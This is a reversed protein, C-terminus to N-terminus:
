EVEVYFGYTVDGEPFLAFAALVYLGPETPATRSQTYSPGTYDAGAKPGWDLNSGQPMSTMEDTSTWDLRVERPTGADFVFEVDEGAPVPIPTANTRVSFLDICIAESGQRWCYTGTGGEVPNGGADRLYASPPTIVGPSPGAVTPTMTTPSATPSPVDDRGACGVLALAVLLSAAFARM